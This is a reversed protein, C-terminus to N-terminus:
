PAERSNSVDSIRFRSSIGAPTKADLENVGVYEFTQARVDASTASKCFDLPCAQEALGVPRPALAGVM